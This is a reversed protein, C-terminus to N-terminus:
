HDTTINSDSYKAIAATPESALPASLTGPLRRCRSRLHTDEPPARLAARPIPRIGHRPAGNPVIAPWGGDGGSLLGRRPWQSGTLMTAETEGLCAPGLGPQNM